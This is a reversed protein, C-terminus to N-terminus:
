HVLVAQEVSWQSWEMGNQENRKSRQVVHGWSCSSAVHGLARKDDELPSLAESHFLRLSTHEGARENTDQGNGWHWSRGHLTKATSIGEGARSEAVHDLESTLM